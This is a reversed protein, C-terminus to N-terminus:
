ALGLLATGNAAAAFTKATAAAEGRKLSHFLDREPDHLAVAETLGEIAVLDDLPDTGGTLVPRDGIEL